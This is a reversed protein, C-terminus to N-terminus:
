PDAVEPGILGMKDTLAELRGGLAVVDGMQMSTRADAGLSEDGRRVNIVRYEPHMQRFQAITKGASERNELRYARLGGARYGSLGADDVNRVGVEDEYKKAAARADVGWWRPLYKVILIIGV